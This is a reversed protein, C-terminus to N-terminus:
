WRMIRLQLIDIKEFPVFCEFWIESSLFFAYIGMIQAGLNFLLISKFFLSQYNKYILTSLICLNCMIHTFRRWFAKNQFHCMRNEWVKVGIQWFKKM